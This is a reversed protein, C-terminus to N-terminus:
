FYHPSEEGHDSVALDVVSSVGTSLGYTIVLDLVHGRNHTPQAVHQTFDMCNLLNLFERAMPDSVNDVHINFDGTVLIRNYSSHISSLFQLYESIFPTPRQPPRYVTACLIPPSSFVFTHFEFSYNTLSLEKSNLTEKFISATGGRKGSRTSFLFNLHPPCAETLVIAADTDLWTETLLICDLNSNLILGNIIFSKNIARINFLAM